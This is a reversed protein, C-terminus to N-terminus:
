TMANRTKDLQRHGQVYKCDRSHTRQSKTEGVRVLHWEKLTLLKQFPETDQEEGGMNKM